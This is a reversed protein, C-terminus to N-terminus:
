WIALDMGWARLHCAFPLYLVLTLWVTALGRRWIRRWPWCGGCFWAFRINTFNQKALLDKFFGSVVPWKIECVSSQCDQKREYMWLTWFIGYLWKRWATRHPRYTQHRGCLRRPQNCCNPCRHSLTHRLTQRDLTSSHWWPLTRYSITVKRHKLWM